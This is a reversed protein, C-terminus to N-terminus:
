GAPRLALVRAPRLPGGPLRTGGAGDAPPFGRFQGGTRRAPAPADPPQEGPERVLRPRRSRACIGGGPSYYDGRACVSEELHGSRNTVLRRSGGLRPLVHSDALAVQRIDPAITISHPQQLTM